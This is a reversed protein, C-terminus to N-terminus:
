VAVVGVGVADGADGVRVAVGGCHSVRSCAVDRRTFVCEIVFSVVGVVAEVIQSGDLVGGVDGRGIGVVADAVQLRDGRRQDSRTGGDRLCDRVGVAVQCM